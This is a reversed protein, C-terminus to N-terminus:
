CGKEGKGKSRRARIRPWLWWPLYMATQICAVAAVMLVVRGPWPGFLDIGTAVDPKANGLYGYNWGALVNIPVIAAV